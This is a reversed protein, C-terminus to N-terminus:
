RVYRCASPSTILLTFIQIYTHRVVELGRCYVNDIHQFLHNLRTQRIMGVEALSLSIALEKFYNLRKANWTIFDGALLIPGNHHELTQIVQDLLTKFKKFSVINIIHCNIVLLSQGLTVLPYFTALLM